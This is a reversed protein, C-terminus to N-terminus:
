YWLTRHAKKLYLTLKEKQIFPVWNVLYSVTKKSELEPLLILELFCSSKKKGWVDGGTGGSTGHIQMDREWAEWM